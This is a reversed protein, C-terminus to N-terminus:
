FKGLPFQQRLKEWAAPKILMYRQDHLERSQLKLIEPNALTEYRYDPRVISVLKLRGSQIPADLGTLGSASFLALFTNPEELEPNFFDIEHMAEENGIPLSGVLIVIQVDKGAKLMSQFEQYSFAEGIPKGDPGKKTLSTPIVVSSVPHKDGLGKKLFPLDNKMFDTRNGEDFDTHIVMVKGPKASRSIESGFLEYRVSRFKQEILASADGKDSAIQLIVLIFTAAAFVIALSKYVFVSSRSKQSLAFFVLMLLCSIVLLLNM